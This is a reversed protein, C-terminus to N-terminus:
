DTAARPLEKQRILQSLIRQMFNAYLMKILQVKGRTICFFCFVHNILPPSISGFWTIQQRNGTVTFM